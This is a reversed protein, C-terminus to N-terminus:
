YDIIALPLDPQINLFHMEEPGVSIRAALVLAANRDAAQKQLWALVTQIPQPQTQM